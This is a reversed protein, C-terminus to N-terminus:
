GACRDTLRLPLKISLGVGVSTRESQVWDGNALRSLLLSSFRCSLEIQAKSLLLVGDSDVSM